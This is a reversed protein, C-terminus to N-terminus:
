DGDQESARPGGAPRVVKAGRRLVVGGDTAHGGVPEGKRVFIVGAHEVTRRLAEEQLHHIRRGSEFRGITARSVRALIAVHSQDLGLLVRAARFQEPTM